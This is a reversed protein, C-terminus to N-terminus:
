FLYFIFFRISCEAMNLTNECRNLNLYNLKLYNLIDDENFKNINTNEDYYNLFRKIHSKYNEFTRKSRGM